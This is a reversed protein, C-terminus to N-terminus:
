AYSFLVGINARYNARSKPSLPLARLWDDIAEVTVTAIPAHGFDRCFHNFRKRLDGLYVKSMGDRRKADIVQDALQAATVNCRPVRDLYDIRFAVADDITEGYKMLKERARIFDSLEHQPLGVAQRGHREFTTLQRRREADAEARTKFFKRGKGFARLD